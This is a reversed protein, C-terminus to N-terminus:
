LGTAGNERLSPLLKKEKLWAFLRRLESRIIQTNTLAAFLTEITDLVVRKANISDIAASLRIFLGELDYEGTEMIENGDITVQDIMLKEDAILATLDYGLSAVNEVLDTAREEFSMFVGPENHEQIGRILFEMSMLTKGSGAAGCM